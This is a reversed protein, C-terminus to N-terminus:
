SMAKLHDTILNLGLRICLAYGNRWDWIDCVPHGLQTSLQAGIELVGSHPREGYRM